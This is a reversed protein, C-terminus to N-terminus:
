ATGKSFLEEILWVLREPRYNLEQKHLVFAGRLDQPVLFPASTLRAYRVGAPLLINRIFDNSLEDGASGDLFLDVIALDPKRSLAREASAVDECTIVEYGSQSLFKEVERLLYSDDDLLLILRKREM